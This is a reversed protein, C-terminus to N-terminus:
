QFILGLLPTGHFLREGTVVATRSGDGGSIENEGVDSM